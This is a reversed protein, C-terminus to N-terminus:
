YKPMEIINKKDYKTFLISYTPNIHDNPMVACDKCPVLKSDPVM